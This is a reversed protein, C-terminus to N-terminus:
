AAERNERNVSAMNMVPQRMDALRVVALKWCNQLTYLSAVVLAITAFGVAFLAFVALLERIVYFQSVVMAALFGWLWRRGNDKKKSKM